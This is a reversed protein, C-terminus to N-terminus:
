GVLDLCAFSDPSVPRYSSSLILLKQLSKTYKGSKNIPEAGKTGREEWAQFSKTLHM